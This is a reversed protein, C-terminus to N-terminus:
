AAAPSEELWRVESWEHPAWSRSVADYHRAGALTRVLMRAAVMTVVGDVLEADGAYINGNRLRVEALGIM